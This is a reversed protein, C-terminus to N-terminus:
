FGGWTEVRLSVLGNDKYDFGRVDQMPRYHGGIGVLEGSTRYTWGHYPCSISSGCNGTGSLMLAGRHRCIPVVGNLQGEAGRIVAIHENAVATTFYDGGNPIQDVRGVCLWERFFIKAVEAEYWEQSTYCRGPLNSAETLPLMTDQFESLRADM